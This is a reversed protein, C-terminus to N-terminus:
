GIELRYGFGHDTAIRLPITAGRLDRRLNSIQVALSNNSVDEGLAALILADQSVPNPARRALQHLLTLRQRPLRFRMGAWRAGDSLSVELDAWRVPPRPDGCCPCNSIM